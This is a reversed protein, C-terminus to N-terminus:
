RAGGGPGFRRWGYAGVADAGGKGTKEFTIEALYAAFEFFTCRSKLACSKLARRLAMFDQFGHREPNM